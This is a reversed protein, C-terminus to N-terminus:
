PLGPLFLNFKCKSQTIGLREVLRELRTLAAQVEVNTKKSDENLVKANSTCENADQLLTQIQALLESLEQRLENKIETKLASSFLLFHDTSSRPPQNSAM